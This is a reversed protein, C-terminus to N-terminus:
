GGSRRTVHLEVETGDGVASRVAARGGYRAMRGVISESIGRRDAGVGAPDFGQGRDRVFVSADEGDLEVYVSVAGANSWKAANVMAERGAAVLAELRDDLPADGVTVVDVTVGHLQEVEEGVAQIAGALTANAAPQGARGFLWSRLEREQHRALQVVSRPDDARRQILALTQLVSDHIHAAMEAREQSRIRERREEALERGLRWWWPGFILGLGGVIGVVAVGAQRVADFAHNMALFAAVGSVVLLVGVALRFAFARGSTLGPFRGAGPLHSAIRALPARDVEDAQRWIVAVGAVALALPWTLAGGFWLGAAKLVLLVAAVVLALAGAQALQGRDRMARQAISEDADERPLVLWAIVYLLLGSGGAVAFVVFAIRV